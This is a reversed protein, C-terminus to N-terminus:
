KKNLKKLMKLIEDRNVDVLIDKNKLDDFVLHTNESTRVFLEKGKDYTAGIPMYTSDYIQIQSSDTNQYLTLGMVDSINKYDGLYSIKEEAANNGSADTNISYLIDYGDDMTLKENTYLMDLLTNVDEEVKCYKFFFEAKRQLEREHEEIVKMDKASVTIGSSKLSEIIEKSKERHKDVYYEVTHKPSDVFKALSIKPYMSNVIEETTEKMADLMNNRLLYFDFQLEARTFKAEINSFDPEETANTDIPYTQITNVFSEYSGYKNQYSEYKKQIQQVTEKDSESLEDINKPLRLSFFKLIEDDSMKSFEGITKHTKIELSKLKNGQVVYVEKVTHEKSYFKVDVYPPVYYIITPKDQNFYESFTMQRVKVGNKEVVKGKNGSCGALSFIFIACILLSVIKRIATGRLKNNM